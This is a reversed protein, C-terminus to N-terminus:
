RGQHIWRRARAQATGLTPAIETVVLGAAYRTVSWDLKRDNRVIIAWRRRDASEYDVRTIM